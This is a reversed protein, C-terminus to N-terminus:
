IYVFPFSLFLLYIFSHIFVYIFLYERGSKNSKLYIFQMNWHLQFEYVLYKLSDNKKKM